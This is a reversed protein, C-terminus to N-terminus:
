YCGALIHIKWYFVFLKRQCRKKQTEMEGMSRLGFLLLLLVAISSVTILPVRMVTRLSLILNMLQSKIGPEERFGGIGRDTGQGINKLFHEEQLAVIAHDCIPGGAAAICPLPWPRWSGGQLGASEGAAAVPFM